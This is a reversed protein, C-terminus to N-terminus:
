PFIFQQLDYSVGGDVGIQGSLQGIRQPKYSIIVMGAPDGAALEFVFTTREEGAIMQEPEPIIEDITVRELLANTIWLHGSGGLEVRLHTPDLVRDFHHYQVRLGSDVAGLTAQNLVGDGGFLGLLAAIVILLMLVWAVRQVRWSRRQFDLDQGLELDGVRRIDSASQNAM